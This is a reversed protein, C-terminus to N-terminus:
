IDYQTLSTYLTSSTNDFLILPYKTSTKELYFINFLENSM